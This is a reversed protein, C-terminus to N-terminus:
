DRQSTTSKLYLMQMTPSSAVGYRLESLPSLFAATSPNNRPVTNTYQDIIFLEGFCREHSTAASWYKMCVTFTNSAQLLSTISPLFFYDFSLLFTTPNISKFNEVRIKIVQHFKDAYTVICNPKQIGLSSTAFATTLSCPVTEGMQNYPTLVATLDLNNFVIEIYQNPFDNSASFTTSFSLQLANPELPRTTVLLLTNLTFANKTWLRIDFIHEATNVPFVVLKVLADPANTFGTMTTSVPMVVLEYYKTNDLDRNRPIEIRM